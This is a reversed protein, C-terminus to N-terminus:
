EIQSFTISRFIEILGKGNADMQMRSSACEVATKLILTGREM